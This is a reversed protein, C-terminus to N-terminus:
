KKKPPGEHGIDTKGLRGSTGCLGDGASRIPAEDEVEGRIRRRQGAIAVIKDQSKLIARGDLQLAEVGGIGLFLHRGELHFTHLDAPLIEERGKAFVQHGGRARGGATGRAAATIVLVAAAIQQVADIMQPTQIDTEVAARLKSRIGHLGASRFDIDVVIHGDSGARFRTRDIQRHIFAAQRATRLHTLGSRGSRGAAGQADVGGVAHGGDDDAVHHNVFVALQGAVNHGCIFAGQGHRAIVRDRALQIEAIREVPVSRFMVLAIRSRVRLDRMIQGHRHRIRVAVAVTRGDRHVHHVVYRADPAERMFHRFPVGDGDDTVRERTRYGARVTRIKGPIRVLVPMKTRDGQIGVTSVAVPQVVVVRRHLFQRVAFRQRFLEGVGIRVRVAIDGFALHGDGDVALIVADDDFRGIRSGTRIRHRHVFGAQRITGLSSLGIRGSRCRTRQIDRSGVTHLADRERKTGLAHYHGQVARFHSQVHMTFAGEAGAIGIALQAVGVRQAVIRQLVAGSVVIGVADAMLDTHHHRIRVVRRLAPGDRHVDHVVYRSDLAERMLHRFPIGDGGDTVRERTRYGARVTRIKGPIRVLVPMKTRDGQIGVTSVAVPQVVVVRRHLFQRVAFRQRFLEGVGIRVRVAIDGFALHGDGDVALIVADDDFRGIRSGTRIRHRHVFGAQRITGLSSLGIRGGRGAAGQDDRGGVAHGGDHDATNHHKFLAPERAIGHGRIFARQRYRVEIRDRALQLKGIFQAAVGRLM